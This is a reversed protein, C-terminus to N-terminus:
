ENKLEEITDIIDNVMSRQLRLREKANYKKYQECDSKLIANLRVHEKGYFKALEMVFDLFKDITKPEERLMDWIRWEQMEPRNNFKQYIEKLENEM